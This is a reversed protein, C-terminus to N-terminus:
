LSFLIWIGVLGQTIYAQRADGEGVWRRSPEAELDGRSNRM